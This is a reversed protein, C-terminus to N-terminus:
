EIEIFTDTNEVRELEVGAPSDLYPVIAPDYNAVTNVEFIMSNNPDDIYDQTENGSLFRWGSDNEEESEERYMFGVKNGDVTIQDSVLCSGMPDILPKIDQPKIRFQKAM